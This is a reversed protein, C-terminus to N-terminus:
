VQPRLEVTSCRGELGNIATRNREGAEEEDTQEKKQARTGQVAPLCTAWCRAEVTTMPVIWLAFVVVIM